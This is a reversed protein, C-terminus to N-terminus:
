LWELLVPFFLYICLFHIFTPHICAKLDLYRRVQQGYGQQGYGGQPYQGYGQQPYGGAAYGGPARRLTIRHLWLFICFYLVFFFFVLVFFGAYPPVPAGPAGAAPSERKFSVQLVKGNYPQGNM